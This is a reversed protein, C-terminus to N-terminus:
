VQHSIQALRLACLQSHLRFKACIERLTLRASPMEMIGKGDYDRNLQWLILHCSPLSLSIEPISLPYQAASVTM